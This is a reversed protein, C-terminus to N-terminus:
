KLCMLSSYYPLCVFLCVFLFCHNFQILKFYRCFEDLFDAKRNRTRITELGDLTASFHSYVPSRGISEIRKLERSTKLYYISIVGALVAVPVVAFLLWPNIATPLIISTFMLLTRQIAKLSTKPLVEDICGVDKSFRNLIRGVPNSDFFFVPAQLIAMVMKAHLRESCRLSVLFFGFIRSFLFIFSAGVLSGYIILNTNNKQDEPRKNTLLSLWVDCSVM